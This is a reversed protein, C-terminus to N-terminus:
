LIIKMLHKYKVVCMYTHAHTQIHTYPHIWVRISICELVQDSKMETRAHKQESFPVWLFREGAGLHLTCEISLRANLKIRRLGVTWSPADAARRRGHRRMECIKCQIWRWGNIITEDIIYYWYMRFKLHMKFKLYM